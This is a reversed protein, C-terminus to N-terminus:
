KNILNYKEIEKQEKRNTKGEKILYYPRYQRRVAFM